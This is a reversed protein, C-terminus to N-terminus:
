SLTAKVADDAALEVRNRGGHKGDYLAKDAAAVTAEPGTIDASAVGITVTTVDGDNHSATEMAARLKEAKILGEEVTLGHLLIAFEEGGIRGILDSEAGKNLRLNASLINATKKLAHDGAAHGGTDNILKFNDADVFLLCYNIPQPGPPIDDAREGPTLLPKKGMDEFFRKRNSLGTLSDKGATDMLERYAITTEEDRLALELIAGGAERIIRKSESADTTLTDIQQGQGVNIARLRANESELEQIRVFPDIAVEPSLHLTEPNTPGTM